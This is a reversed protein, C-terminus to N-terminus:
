TLRRSKQSQAKNMHDLWLDYSKTQVNIRGGGSIRLAVILPILSDANDKEAFLAQDMDAKSIMSVTAKILHNKLHKKEENSLQKVFKIFLANIEVSMGTLLHRKVVDVLMGENLKPLKALFEAAKVPDYQRPLADKKAILRAHESLVIILDIIKEMATKLAYKQSAKSQIVSLHNKIHDLADIEGNVVSLDTCENLITDSCRYLGKVLADRLKARQGRHADGEMPKTITNIKEVDDSIAKITFYPNENVALLRDIINKYDADPTPPSLLAAFRSFTLLPTDNEMLRIHPEGARIAAVLAKAVKKTAVEDKSVVNMGFYANLKPDEYIGRLISQYIHHNAYNKLFNALFNLWEKLPLHSYRNSERVLERFQSVPKSSKVREEYSLAGEVKGM